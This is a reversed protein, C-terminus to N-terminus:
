DTFVRPFFVSCFNLDSASEVSVTIRDIWAFSFTFTFIYLCFSFVVQVSLSSAVTSPSAASTACTKASSLFGIRLFSPRQRESRPTTLECQLIMWPEQLSLFLPPPFFKTLGSNFHFSPKLSSFFPFSAKNDKPKNKLKTILFLMYNFRSDPDRFYGM